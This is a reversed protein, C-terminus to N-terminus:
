EETQATPPLLADAVRLAFWRLRDYYGDRGRTNTDRFEDLAALLTTVMEREAELEAVRARLAVLDLRNRDGVIDLLCLYCDCRDGASLIRCRGPRIDRILERIKTEAEDPTLPRPDSM